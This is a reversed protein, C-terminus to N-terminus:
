RNTMNALLSTGSADINHDFDETVEYPSDQCFNNDGIEAHYVRRSTKTCISNFQSDYNTSSSVVLASYQDFKLDKGSQAHMQDSQDKVDRM